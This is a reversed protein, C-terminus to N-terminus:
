DYGRYSIEYGLTDNAQYLVTEGGEFFDKVLYECQGHKLRSEEIIDSLSVGRLIIDPKHPFAQCPFYGEDYDGDICIILALLHALNRCRHISLPVVPGNRGLIVNIRIKNAEENELITQDPFPYKEEDDLVEDGRLPSLLPQYLYSQTM